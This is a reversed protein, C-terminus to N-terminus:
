NTPQTWKCERMSVTTSFVQFNLHNNTLSTALNSLDNSYQNATAFRGALAAEIIQPPKGTSSGTMTSEMRAASAEDLVVMTVMVDPPLQDATIVQTFPGGAPGSPTVNAQSDYSYAMSAPLLNMGAPDDNVSQRPWVVLAIVNDALPSVYASGQTPPNQINGLWSTQDTTAGTVATSPFVSFNETPEMGQMLRYRYRETTRGAAIQSTVATPEYLQNSGFFVYYGCANLLGTSSQLAADTSYARPSQFYVEQGYYSQQKNARVLFQLDSARGYAVPFFASLNTNTRRTSPSTGTSDGYYDLYTNLTAQSLNQTMVDFAARASTFATLAQTSLSVTTTALTTIRLLIGVLIVTIVAALLVEVLTFGAKARHRASTASGTTFALTM